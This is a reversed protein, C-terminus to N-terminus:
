DLDKFLPLDKLSAGTKKQREGFQTACRNHATEAWRPDRDNGIYRRGLNRAALLSNGSGCFCDLLIGNPKSSVSIIHEM